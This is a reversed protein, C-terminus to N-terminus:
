GRKACTLDIDGGDVEYTRIISYIVDEYELETQDAYDESHVVFGIDVQVGAAQASFYESRKISHKNAWVETETATASPFGDPDTTNTIARLKVKDSFYM